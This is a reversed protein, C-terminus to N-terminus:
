VQDFRVFRVTGKHDKLNWLDYEKGGYSVRTWPNWLGYHHYHDPPQIRTLVNGAPTYLPHIYGSRAYLPDVGEPPAKVTYHYTLLRRGDARGLVLEDPQKDAFMPPASTPKGKVLEFIRKTGVPTVGDLKWSFRPATDTTVQFPKEIRDSGVIEVLRINEFSHVGLEIVPVSVPINAHAVTGASVEIRIIPEDAFCAASFVSLLVVGLTKLM